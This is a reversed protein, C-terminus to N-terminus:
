KCDSVIFQNTLTIRLLSHMSDHTPKSINESNGAPTKVSLLGVLFRFFLISMFNSNCPLISPIMKSVWCHKTKGM